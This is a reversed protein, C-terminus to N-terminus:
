AQHGKGSVAVLNMFQPFPRPIERLGRRTVRCINTYGIGRLMSLVTELEYGAQKWWDLTYEFVLAPRHRSLTDVAGLLAPAELGEIDVKILDIQSPGLTAVLADITMGPVDISGADELYRSHRQLSACARGSRLDRPLFLSHSHQTPLPCGCIAVQRILVNSMRNLSLNASLRQLLAPNPECAIVAGPHAAQAMVLTHTGVNAGVDIASRGPGIFRRILARVEPEFGFFFAQREFVDATNV